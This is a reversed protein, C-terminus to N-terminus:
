RSIAAGEDQQALRDFVAVAWAIRDALRRSEGPHDRFAPSAAVAEVLFATAPLPPAARRPRRAAVMTVSQAMLWAKRRLPVVARHSVSDLGQREVARGIEAYVRRAAAIGARCDMPLLAIGAEGRLYHADAVRLLRAVVRGLAPTFAPAALFADADIGEEALWDLPLYLRGMRADAGVDRAINTLQMAVGLDCARAHAAPDRVGMLLTMMAGVTAAVRAAYDELAAIDQYRRGEGDWAFGELLAAPLARPIAYLRVVQAFARDAVHEQPRGAYIDDLRRLLRRLPEPGGEGEDIEDDAVRCFAYLAAAPEAVRRPLLMSAARFTKSGGALM